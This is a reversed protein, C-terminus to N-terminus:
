ASVVIQIKAVIFLFRIEEKGPITAKADFLCHSYFLPLLSHFHLGSLTFRYTCEWCENSYVRVRRTTTFKSQMYNRHHACAHEGIENHFAM